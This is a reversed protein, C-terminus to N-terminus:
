KGKTRIILFIIETLLIFGLLKTFLPIGNDATSEDVVPLSEDSVANGETDRDNGSAIADGTILEGTAIETDEASDPVVTDEDDSHPEEKPVHTEEPVSEDVTDEDTSTVAVDEPEPATDHSDDTVPIDDQTEPDEVTCTQKLTPMNIRFLCSNQDRCSRTQESDICDSWYGCTWDETCNDWVKIEINGEISVSDDGDAVVNGNLIYKGSEHSILTYTYTHVGGPTFVWQIIGSDKNYNIYMPEAGILTIGQPIKEYLIYIESPNDVTIVVQFEEGPDVFDPITRAASIQADAYSMGSLIFVGLLVIMASFVCKMIM